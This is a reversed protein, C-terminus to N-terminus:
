EWLIDNWEGWEDKRWGLALWEGRGSSNREFIFELISEGNNSYLRNKSDKDFLFMTLGISFIDEIKGNVEIGIMSGGLVASWVNPSAHDIIEESWIWLNLSPSLPNELCLCLDLSIQFNRGISKKFDDLVSKIINNWQQKSYPKDTHGAKWIQEELESNIM